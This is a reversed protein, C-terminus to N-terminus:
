DLVFIKITDRWVPRVADKPYDLYLLISICLFELLFYVYHDWPTITLVRSKSDLSGLEFRPPVKIIKGSRFYFINEFLIIFGFNKYKSFIFSINCCVHYVGILQHSICLKKQVCPNLHKWMAVNIDVYM